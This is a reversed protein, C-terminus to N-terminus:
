EKVCTCKIGCCAYYGDRCTVSCTASVGIELITIGGEIECQIAGQGGNYCYPIDNAALVEVNTDFLYTDSVRDGISTLVLIISM